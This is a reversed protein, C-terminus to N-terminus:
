RSSAQRFDRNPQLLSRRPGEGGERQQGTIMYIEFNSLINCMNMSSHFSNVTPHICLDKRSSLALGVIAWQEQGEYHNVLKKLEEVVVDLEPVTRCCYVLKTLHDPHEKMYAVVLSLLTITKEICSPM